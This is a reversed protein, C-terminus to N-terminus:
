EHKVKKDETVMFFIDEMSLTKRRFEDINIGKKFLINMINNKSSNIDKKTLISKLKIELNDKLKISEIVDENKLLDYAKKNDDTNLIILYNSMYKNQLEKITGQEILTGNKIIGVKNCMVEIDKLLHSTIFITIKDKKNIDLLLQQIEQQGKPDLGITPEDLFIIKPKNILSKAIGLRQKMGSSFQGVLVDKKDILGVKKLLYEIYKNNDMHPYFLSSFYELYEKATMSNYYGHSEPVVGIIKKIDLINKTVDIGAVEVKGSTPLLLGDLMRITTTKGAGNPGLFGFIDGEEIDLNLDKVAHFGNKYVKNLHKTKIV